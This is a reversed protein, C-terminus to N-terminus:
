LHSLMIQNHNPHVAEKFLIVVTTPLTDEKHLFVFTSCTHQFLVNLHNWLYLLIDFFFCVVVIKRYELWWDEKQETPTSCWSTATKGAPDSKMNVKSKIQNCTPFLPTAILLMWILKCCSWCFTEFPSYFAEWVKNVASPQSFAAFADTFPHALGFGTNFFFTKVTQCNNWGQEKQTKGNKETLSCPQYNSWWM